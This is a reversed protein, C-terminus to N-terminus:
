KAEKKRSSPVLPMSDQLMELTYKRRSELWVFFNDMDQELDYDDGSLVKKVFWLSLTAAEYEQCALGYRVQDFFEGSRYAERWAEDKKFFMAATLRSAWRRILIADAETM